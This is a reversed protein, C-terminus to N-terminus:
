RYCAKRVSIHVWITREIEIQWSKKGLHVQVKSPQKRQQNSSSIRSVGKSQFGSNRSRSYSRITKFDTFNSFSLFISYISVEKKIKVKALVDVVEKDRMKSIGFVNINFAGVLLMGTSNEGPVCGQAWAANNSLFLVSLLLINLVALSLMKIAARNHEEVNLDIDCYQISFTGEISM